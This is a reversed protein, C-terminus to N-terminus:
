PAGAPPTAEGGPPAAPAEVPLTTEPPRELPRVQILAGFLPHDLYHTEGSRMRRSQTLRFLTPERLEEALLQELLAADTSDPLTQAAPTGRASAAPAAPPGVPPRYYLLDVRVHLYRARHLRLTGDLAARAPDRPMSARASFPAGLYSDAAAVNAAQSGPTGGFTSNGDHVHVSKAEAEAFGPQNWALHLLPRYSESKELRQWADGLAFAEAPLRRFARALGGSQSGEGAQGAQGAQGGQGADGSQPARQQSPLLELAGALAPLGPEEPWHEAGRGAEDTREFVILEVTYWTDEEALPGGAAGALLAAGLLLVTM